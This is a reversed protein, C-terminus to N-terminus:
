LRADHSIRVSPTMLADAAAARLEARLEPRESGAVGVWASTVATLRDGGGAEVASRLASRFGDVGVLSPNAPGAAGRRLEGRANEIICVTTSGGADVGVFLESVTAAGRSRRMSRAPPRSGRRLWTPM